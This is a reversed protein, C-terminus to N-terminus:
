ETVRVAIDGDSLSLTLDRAKKAQAVTRIIGQGEASALSYGRKLANTPNYAEIIKQSSSLQTECSSVLSSLKSSLVTVYTDVDSTIMAFYSTIKSSLYKKQEIIRHLVDAKNPVLLEAANSPTSARQDAVLEALSIDVEHGIAVLTPIRSGAIARTVQETSFAELDDLSGGGRVVVLVEQDNAHTNFWEVASVIQVVADAGQVAVNILSIEVGSWRANLVKVFDAYAASQESTILGIKQPPYPLRRKRAEDFLGEKRLKEELLKSAKKITGEGALEISRINLSFGFQPHLRPECVIRVLMGDVLPAPLMYVTGFCRLKSYEDKLDFYVWRGKSVKFDSLEGEVLLVPYVTELTQNLFAVADTPQLVLNSTQMKKM